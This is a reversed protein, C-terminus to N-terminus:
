RPGGAAIVRDAEARAAAALSDSAAIKGLVAGAHAIVAANVRARAEAEPMGGAVVAKVIGELVGEIMEKFM